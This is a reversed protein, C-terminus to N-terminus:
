IEIKCLFKLEKTYDYYKKYHIQLISKRRLYSEHKQRKKRLAMEEKNLGLKIRSMYVSLLYKKLNYKLFIISNKM